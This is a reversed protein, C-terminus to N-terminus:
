CGLRAQCDATRACAARAQEVTGAEAGAEAGAAAGAETGTAASLM